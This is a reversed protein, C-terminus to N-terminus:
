PKLRHNGGGKMGGGFVRQRGSGFAQGEERPVLHLEPDHAGPRFACAAGEHEEGSPAIEDFAVELGRTVEHRAAESHNCQVHPALAAGLANGGIGVAIQGPTEGREVLIHAAHHFARDQGQARGGIIAEAM